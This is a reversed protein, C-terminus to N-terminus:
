PQWQVLHRATLAVATAATRLGGHAIRIPSRM